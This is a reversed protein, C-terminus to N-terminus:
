TGSRLNRSTTKILAIKPGSRPSSLILKLLRKKEKGRGGKREKGRGKGERAGAGKGRGEGAEEADKVGGKGAGERMGVSILGGGEDRIPM